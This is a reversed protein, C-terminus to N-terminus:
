GDGARAAHPRIRVMTYTEEDGFNILGVGPELLSSLQEREALFRRATPPIEIKDTKLILKTFCNMLIDRSLHASSTAAVILGLGFKRGESAIRNLIAHPAELRAPMMLKTEDVVLFLRHKTQPGHMQLRRLLQQCLTNAALYQLGPPLKSLDIRTVIKEKIPVQSKSLIGYSFAPGLKTKLAEPRRDKGAAEALRDLAQELDRFTPPERRWSERDEQVIGANKYVESLARDLFALQNGGMPAFAERLSQLVLFRQPDPGGGAPDLDVALPNVGYSSTMSIPYSAAGEILLDGHFDIAVVGFELRSLELMARKITQTKGAGSGGLILFHPNALGGPNWHVVEGTDVENGLAIGQGNSARPNSLAPRQVCRAETGVAVPSLELIGRLRAKRKLLRLQAYGLLLLLASGLLLIGLGM